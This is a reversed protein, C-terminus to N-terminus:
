RRCWAARSNRGGCQFCSPAAPTRCRRLQLEVFEVHRHFVPEAGFALAVADRKGIQFAAADADGRLGDAHRARRVFDREGIRLLAAAEALRDDFMLGDRKAKGVHRGLEFGRTLEHQM